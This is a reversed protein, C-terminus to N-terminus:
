FYLNGNKFCYQLDWNNNKELYFQRSRTVTYTYIKLKNEFRELTELQHNVRALCGALPLV